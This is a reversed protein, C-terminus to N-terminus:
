VERFIGVVIDRGLAYFLTSSRNDPLWEVMVMCCTLRSWAELKATVMIM